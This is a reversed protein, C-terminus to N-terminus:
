VARELVGMVEVNPLFTGHHGCLQDLVTAARRSGERDESSQQERGGTRGSGPGPWTDVRGTSRACRGKGRGRWQGSAPFAQLDVRWLRGGAGRQGPVAGVADHEAKASSGRM